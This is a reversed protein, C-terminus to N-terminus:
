RPPWPQPAPGSAPPRTLSARLRAITDREKPQLRSADDPNRRADIDEAADLHALATTASASAHTRQYVEYWAAAASVRLRPNTPYLHVAQEWNTTATQWAQRASAADNAAAHQRALAESIRAALAYNSFNRSNLSCARRAAGDALALARQREEATLTPVEAAALAARAAHRLEASDPGDRALPAVALNLKPRDPSQPLERLSRDVIGRLVEARLVLRAVFYHHAALAVLLTLTAIATPWATRRASPAKTTPAPSPETAILAAACLVFLALGGPTLLAFSLLAHIWAALLAALLGAALWTRSTAGRLVRLLWIAAAFAVLWKVAVDVIWIFAMDGRALPTESAVAQILLVLVPIPAARALTIGDATTADVSTSLHRLGRALVFGCLAVGSLLGLPGLEVLLSLWLNHPNRVEESNEAPKYRLYADAFNERGLGTLPAEAYAHGAATWYHWRFALSPHPLTGRALGYAAGAAILGVYLAILFALTSTRHRAILSPGLGAVLLLVGGILGAGLAGRSGTLWLGWVLLVLLLGAVIPAYRTYPNPHQPDPPPGRLL